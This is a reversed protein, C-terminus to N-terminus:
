AADTKLGTAVVKLSGDPAPRQLALARSMPARLWTERTGRDLLLVPMAKEHIPAVEANPETTLFAFVLHDGFEGKRIGFVTRWVGAFFFLPRDKDLAFWTPVGGARRWDYECFSTAPVLCRHNYHLWSRWWSSETNRVNTTIKSTARPPSPFGWRMKILERDGDSTSRVVPALQDPFISPQPELNGTLDRWDGDIANALERIAEKNTTVSYLNCM